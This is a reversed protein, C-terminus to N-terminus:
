EIDIAHQIGADDYLEKALWGYGLADVLEAEGDAVHVARRTREGQWRTHGVEACVLKGGRTRYLTLETWRINRPGDHELSTAAAIREGQFRVDPGTDRELEIIEMDSDEDIDEIDDAGLTPLGKRVRSEWELSQEIDNGVLRAAIREDIEEGDIDLITAGAVDLRNDGQEDIDIDFEYALQVSGSGGQALWDIVYTIEPREVSRLMCTGYQYSAFRPEVEPDGNEDLGVVEPELEGFEHDGYVVEAVEWTLNELQETTITKITEM